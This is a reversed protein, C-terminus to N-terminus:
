LPSKRDTIVAGDRLLAVLPEIVADSSSKMLAAAAYLRCGQNSDSLLRVLGQIEETSTWDLDGLALAAGERVAPDSDALAAALAPGVGPGFDDVSRYDLLLKKTEDAQTGRLSALWESTSKAHLWAPILIVTVFVAAIRAQW